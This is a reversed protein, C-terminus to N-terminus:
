LIIKTEVFYKLDGYSGFFCKDIRTKRQIIWLHWIRNCLNWIKLSLLKMFGIEFNSKVNKNKWKKNFEKDKIKIIIYYFKLKTM